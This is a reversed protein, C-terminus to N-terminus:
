EINLRRCLFVTSICSRRLSRCNKIPSFIFVVCFQDLSHLPLPDITQDDSSSSHDLGTLLPELRNWQNRLPSFFLRTNSTRPVSHHTLTNSVDVNQYLCIVILIPDCTGYVRIYYTTRNILLHGWSYTLAQRNQCIFLGNQSM